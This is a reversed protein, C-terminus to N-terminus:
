SCRPSVQRIAEFDASFSIRSLVESRQEEAQAQTIKGKKAERALLKSLSDHIRGKGTELAQQQLEVGVVPYGAMAVM